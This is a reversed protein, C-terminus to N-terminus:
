SLTRFVQCVACSKCSIKMDIVGPSAQFETHLGMIGTSLTNDSLSVPLSPNQKYILM